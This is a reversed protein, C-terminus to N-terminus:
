RGYQEIMELAEEKRYRLSTVINVERVEYSLVNAYNDYCSHIHLHVDEHRELVCYVVVNEEIEGNYHLQIKATIEWGNNAYRM